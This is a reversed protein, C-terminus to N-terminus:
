LMKIVWNLRMSQSMRILVTLTRKYFLEINDSNSCQKILILKLDFQSEMESRWPKHMIISQNKFFQNSFYHYFILKQLTQNTKAQCAQIGFAGNPIM